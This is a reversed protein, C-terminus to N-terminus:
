KREGLETEVDSRDTDSRGADTPAADSPDGDSRDADDREVDERRDTQEDDGTGVSSTSDSEAGADTARDVAGAGFWDSGEGTREVAEVDVLRELRREFESESIEGTAYEHKLATMADADEGPGETAGSDYAEPSEIQGILSLYVPWLLLAALAGTSAMLVGFFLGVLNSVTGPEILGVLAFGFSFFAITGMGTALLFRGITGDPTYQEVLGRTSRDDERPSREGVM